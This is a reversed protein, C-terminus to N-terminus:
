LVDVWQVGNGKGDDWVCIVRQLNVDGHRKRQKVLRQISTNAMSQYVPNLYVTLYRLSSCLPAVRRSGALAAITIPGLIINSTYYWLRLHLESLNSWLKLLELLYTDPFFHISLSMPRVPSRRLASM